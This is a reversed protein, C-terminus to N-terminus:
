VEITENEVKLTTGRLDSADGADVGDVRTKNLDKNASRVIQRSENQLARERAKFLENDCTTLVDGGSNTIFEGTGSLEPVYGRAAWKDLNKAAAFFAHRVAPKVVRGTHDFKDLCDPAYLKILAMNEDATDESLFVEPAKRFNEQAALAREMIIKQDEKLKSFDPKAVKGIVEPESDKHKRMHSARGAKHTTVMEGCVDCPTKDEVQPMKKEDSM